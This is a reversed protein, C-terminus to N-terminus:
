KPKILEQRYCNKCINKLGNGLVPTPMIASALKASGIVLQLNCSANPSKTSQEYTSIKHRDNQNIASGEEVYKMEKSMNEAAKHIEKEERYNEIDDGDWGFVPVLKFKQSSGDTKPFGETQYSYKYSPQSSPISM